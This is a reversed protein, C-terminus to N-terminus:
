MVSQKALLHLYMKKCSRGHIDSFLISMQHTLNWQERVRKVNAVREAILQSTMLLVYLSVRLPHGFIATKDDDIPGNHRALFLIAYTCEHGVTETSVRSNDYVGFYGEGSRLFLGGSSDM